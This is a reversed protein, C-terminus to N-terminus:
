YRFVTAPGHTAPISDPDALSRPADPVDGPRLDDLPRLRVSCDKGWTMVYGRRQPFYPMLRRNAEVSIHNVWLVDESLDPDNVPWWYVFHNTPAGRCARAFPSPSFVVAQHLGAAAVADFPMMISDTQRALADLRVPVFGGAATLILAALLAAPLFQLSARFRSPHLAALAVRQSLARLGLMTLLLIPWALELYHVPGFSDVGVDFPVLYAVLLFFLPLPLWLWGHGRLGAFAIFLLSSPWGFLDFNLRFLAAGSFLPIQMLSRDFRFRFSREVLDSSGSFRYGNEKMYALYRGYPTIWASGNVALNLALFLVGCLVAPVIFAALSPALDARRTARRDLVWAALVPLGLALAVWPRVFFALAFFATVGAHSWWPADADRSRLFCWTMWAIAMLCSTHSMETAAAVMLMPSALYLVVAAKAWASGVLRRAVLFLPPVTLGSYIPNMVGTNGLWVGPVMLAPWGLFYQSYLHGDNTMFAHDFFLKLPPSPARLRGSALLRAAFRYVSEDDTLPMGHLVFRRIALPVLLGAACGLGIWQWDPWSRWWARFENGLGGYAALRALGLAILAASVAGFVSWVGVFRLYRPTPLAISGLDLVFGDFFAAATWHFAVLVFLGALTPWTCWWVRGADRARRM